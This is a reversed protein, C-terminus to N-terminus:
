RMETDVLRAWVILRRSASHLPTCTTLVLEYGRDALVSVDDPSVETLKEVEYTFRAYPTEIVIRDGHRLKDLSFFPAGYTTRHGAVAFPRGLGPLPTTGYHVPGKRLLETDSKPSLGGLGRAGEIVVRELALRPIRLRGVPAGVELDDAYMGAVYRLRDEATPLDAILAARARQKVVFATESTRYTQELGSQQSRTYASSWLPFALVLGGVIILLDALVRVIRQRPARKKV